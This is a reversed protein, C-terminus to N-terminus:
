MIRYRVYPNEGDVMRAFPIFNFQGSQDKWVACILVVQKGTKKDIAAVAAAQGNAFARHLTDFNKRTGEAIPKIM